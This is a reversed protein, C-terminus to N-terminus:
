AAGISAVNYSLMRPNEVPILRSLNGFGSKRDWHQIVDAQAVIASAAHISDAAYLNYENALEIAKRVVRMDLDVKKIWPWQFMANMEAIQDPSLPRAGLFGPNQPRIVETITYNSTFLDVKGERAHQMIDECIVKPEGRHKSLYGLFATSDWYIRNPKNSM